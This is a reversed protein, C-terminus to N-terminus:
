KTVTVSSSVSFGNSRVVLTYSGSALSAASMRVKHEGATLNESLLTGVEQGASNVVVVEVLGATEMGFSVVAGDVVPNPAINNIWLGSGEGDITVNVSESTSRAGDKDVTTLRYTYTGPVLKEDTISYDKPTTSSGNAEVTRVVSFADSTIDGAKVNNVSAREVEFQRLGEESATSWFVDVNKGRAKADFSTLQVPVLGGGNTEFFDLIGRVVREIGTRLVTASTSRAFHRWDVGLYVSNATIGATATGMISDNPTSRDSRRYTYAANVVGSTTGDSYMSVLAPTPEGDGTFGTRIM